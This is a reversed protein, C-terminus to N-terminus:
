TLKRRGMNVEAQQLLRRGNSPWRSHRGTAAFGGAHKRGGELLLVDACTLAVGHWKCAQAKFSISRNLNCQEQARELMCCHGFASRVRLAHRGLQGRRSATRCSLQGTIAYWAQAARGDRDAGIRSRGQGAATGRLLLVARRCLVGARLVRGDLRVRPAARRRLDHVLQQPFHHFVGERGPPCTARSCREEQKM